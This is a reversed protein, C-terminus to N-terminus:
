WLIIYKITCTFYYLPLSSPFCYTGVWRRSWKIDWKEFVTVEQYNSYNEERIDKKKKLKSQAIRWMTWLNYCYVLLYIGLLLRTGVGAGMWGNGAEQGAVPLCMLKKAVWPTKIDVLWGLYINKDKREKQHKAGLAVQYIKWMDNIYRKM